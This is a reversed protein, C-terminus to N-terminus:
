MMNMVMFVVPSFMIASVTSDSLWCKGISSYGVGVALTDADRLYRFLGFSHWPRCFVAIFILHQLSSVSDVQTLGKSLSHCPSGNARHKQIPAALHAVSRSKSIICSRINICTFHIQWLCRKDLFSLLILHIFPFVVCVIAQRSQGKIILLEVDRYTGSLLALCHHTPSWSEFKIWIKRL